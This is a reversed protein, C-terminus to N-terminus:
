VTCYLIIISVTYYLIRNEFKNEADTGTWRVNPFEWVRNAKTM